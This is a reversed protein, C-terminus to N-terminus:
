YIFANPLSFRVYSQVGAGPNIWNAHCLISQALQIVEWRATQSLMRDDTMGPFIVAEGVRNM